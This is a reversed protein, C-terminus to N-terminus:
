SRTEIRKAIRASETLDHFARAAEIFLRLGPPQVRRRRWNMSIPVHNHAGQWPLVAVRGQSEGVALLPMLACGMGTEVLSRITAISGFEGVIDPKQEGEVPFATDFMQRYICGKETVLFPEGALDSAEVGNRGALRHGAPAVVALEELSLVESHCDDEDPVGFAVYIDLRGAKLGQRLEGSGASKLHLAIGPHSRSFQALLPSLRSVCLTELGGVTLVGGALGAAEAVSSRAEEALALLKEAYPLLRKGAENLELRRQSREFLPTGLEAELAQIQETVSSQTLHVTEAARTISLTSAVAVFTRLNRPHM